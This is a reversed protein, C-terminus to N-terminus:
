ISPLLEIATKMLELAQLMTSRPCGFNFRVFGEGGPGFTSGDNLAVKAKDLFFKFPSTTIRGSRVLANSDLWALYTADPLTTRVDPM